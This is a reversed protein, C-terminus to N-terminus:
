IRSIKYKKVAYYIERGATEVVTAVPVALLMGPIGAIQSGAVILLIIIIPHINLNKSFIYPQFFGNDLIYVCLIMVAISPVQSFNGFQILSVIIAATGGVFPGLYPVLHGLSAIVGLTFSNDIGLFYFGLACISGVFAADFIWARVFRGLQESIKKLIWYSMEFYKNPVINLIGKLIIRSDKLLYFTIFPVIFLIALVSFLSSLFTTAKTMSDIIISGLYAEAKQVVEGRPVFPFFKRIEKEVAMIRQHLSITKLSDTLKDIQDAFQPVYISYVSYITIIILFFIIITTFTRSVKRKEFYTVIPDFILAFLVSLALIVIIEYFFFILCLVAAAALAWASIKLAKNPKVENV